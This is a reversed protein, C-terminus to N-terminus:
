LHGAVMVTVRPMIALMMAEVMILTAM